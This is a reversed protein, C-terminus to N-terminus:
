IDDITRDIRQGFHTGLGEEELTVVEVAAQSSTDTRAASSQKALGRIEAADGILM